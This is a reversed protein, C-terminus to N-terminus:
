SHIFFDIFNSLEVNRGHVTILRNDASFIRDENISLKTHIEQFNDLSISMVSGNNFTTLLHNTSTTTTSVVREIAGLEVTASHIVKFTNGDFKNFCFVNVQKENTIETDALRVMFLYNERFAFTTLNIGYDKHLDVSILLDGSIYNFLSIETNGITVLKSDKICSMHKIQYNLQPFQRISALKALDLNPTLNYKCLGSFNKSENQQEQWSIVFYSSNPITTYTIDCILSKVTDLHVSSHRLAQRHDMYYINCYLFVIPCQIPDELQKQKARMEVYIPYSNLESYCIRQCKNEVDVETDHLKRKFVDLLKFDAVGKKLLFSLNDFQFFSITSQQLTVLINNEFYIHETPENAQLPNNDTIASISRTLIVDEKEEEVELKIEEKLGTQTEVSCFSKVDILSHETNLNSCSSSSSTDSTKTDRTSKRIKKSLAKQGRRRMILNKRLSNKSKDNLKFIINIKNNIKNINQSNENAIISSTTDKVKSINAIERNTEPSKSITLTESTKLPSKESSTSPKVSTYSTITHDQQAQPHCKKLIVFPKTRVPATGSSECLIKKEYLIQKGNGHANTSLNNTLENKIGPPTKLYDIREMCSKKPTENGSKSTSPTMSSKYQIIPANVTNDTLKKIKAVQVIVPLDNNERKNQYLMTERCNVRISTRKNSSPTATDEFDSTPSTPKSIGLYEYFTEKCPPTLLLKPTYDRRIAIMSENKKVIPTPLQKQIALSAELEKSNRYSDVSNRDISVVCDKVIVVKEDEFLNPHKSARQLIGKKM